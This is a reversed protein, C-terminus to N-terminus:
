QDIYFVRGAVLAGDPLKRHHEYSILCRWAEYAQNPTKGLGVWRHRKDLDQCCWFGDMQWVRARPVTMLMQSKLRQTVEHLCQQAAPWIIAAEEKSYRLNTEGGSRRRVREALNYRDNAIWLQFGTPRHILCFEDADWDDHHRLADAIRHAAPYKKRSDEDAEACRERQGSM